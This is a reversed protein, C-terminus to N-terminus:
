QVPGSIDTRPGDQPEMNLEAKILQWAKKLSVHEPWTLRQQNLISEIMQAAQYLEKDTKSDM